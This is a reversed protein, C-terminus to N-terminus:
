NEYLEDFSKIGLSQKFKRTRPRRFAGLVIGVIFGIFILGFIYDGKM